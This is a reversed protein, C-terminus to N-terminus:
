HNNFIQYQLMHLINILEYVRNPIDHGIIGHNYTSKIRDIIDKNTKNNGSISFTMAQSRIKPINPFLLQAQGSQHKVHVMKTVLNLTSVMVQNNDKATNLHEILDDFEKCFEELKIHLCDDVSQKNSNNFIDDDHLEIGMSNEYGQNEVLQHHRKDVRENLLKKIRERTPDGHQKDFILESNIYQLHIQLLKKLLHKKVKSNSNSNSNDNNGNLINNDHWKDNILKLLESESQQFQERMQDNLSENNKTEANANHRQKKAAPSESCSNNDLKNSKRNNLRQIAQLPATNNSNNNMNNHNMTNSSPPSPQQQQDIKTIWTLLTRVVNIGDSISVPDNDEIHLQKYFKPFKLILFSKNSESLNIGLHVLMEDSTMIRTLIKRDIHCQITTFSTELNLKKCVNTAVQITRKSNDM